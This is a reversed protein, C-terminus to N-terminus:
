YAIESAFLTAYSTMRMFAGLANLSKGSTIRDVTIELDGDTEQLAFVVDEDTWNPFMEQITGVKSGFKKKLQSVESDEEISASADEDHARDGNTAQLRGGRAGGRTSFGGRASGRASGRGRVATRESM